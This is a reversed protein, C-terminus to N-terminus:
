KKGSCWISVVCYAGDLEIIEAHYIFGRSLCTRVRTAYTSAISGVIEAQDNLAVVSVVGSEEHLDVSLIEGTELDGLLDLNPTQLTATFALDKCNRKPPKPPPKRQGGM